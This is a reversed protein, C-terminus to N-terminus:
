QHCVVCDMLQQANPQQQHCSLCWGMNMKVVQQDEQMHGVDGHCRECNFGGAVVHVEHSFYVFRPVQNVRVWPIPKQNNWYVALQQIAPKTTSIIRHCGMCREVSPIGAVPSRMAETHCFLCSIGAQVMTNHPFPIPQQPAPDSRFVFAAGAIVVVIVVALPILLMMSRRPRRATSGENDM